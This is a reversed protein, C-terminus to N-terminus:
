PLTIKIQAERRVKKVLEARQDEAYTELVELACKELVSPTGPKRDTVLILHLGYESEIVGSIEGIKMAFAAKALPEDEPMGRRLIYGLNGGSKASPCQSFRRAATAFDGRGALVDARIAQLREKAAARETPPLGKPTRLLIHSLRVEIRDFHDRNAAHYAKLQEDTTQQKVYQLLQNQIAWAERLRAETQGTDKLYQDLTRNEKALQAALAKTQADIVAPDTKLGSKALFQKLLAEDILDELLAARLRRRQALTLPVNALDAGVAADLEAVTIPEGNVTAAIDAAAPPQAAAAAPVALLVLFATRM